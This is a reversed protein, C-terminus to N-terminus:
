WWAEAQLGVTLGNKDEGFAGNAVGAAQAGDNWFAYTVFARLEPRVWFPNGTGPIPRLTPAFTFKGLTASDGGDPKVQNFGLEAQLLIYESVYYIPRIGIGFATYKTAENETTASRDKREVSQFTGVLAGSFEPSMSWLLHEVVRIQKDDKNARNPNGIVWSNGMGYQFTLKNFGGLVNLTHEVTFHAGIKSEDDPLDALDGTPDARSLYGLYAAFELSGAEGLGIGSLRLDPGWFVDRGGAGNQFLALSFKGVGLDVNEIGGGLSSTNLYFFDIIHVDHRQYYRKGIWVNSGKWQPMTASVWTQATEFTGPTPIAWMHSYVFEVGDQSKYLSQSLQLEGYNDCENGLRFKYWSGPGQFCVQGGGKSTGAAGARIYGHFDVASASGAGMAIAAVALALV